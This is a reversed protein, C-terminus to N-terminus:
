FHRCGHNFGIIINEDMRSDKTFRRFESKLTYWVVVAFEATHSASKEIVFSSLMQHRQASILWKKLHRTDRKFYTLHRLINQKQDSNVHAMVM